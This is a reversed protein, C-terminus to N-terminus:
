LIFLLDKTHFIFDEVNKGEDLNVAEIWTMKGWGGRGQLGIDRGYPVPVLRLDVSDCIRPM